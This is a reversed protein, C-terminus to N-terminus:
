WRLIPIIPIIPIIPVIPVIPVVPSIPELTGGNVLKLAEASLEEIQAQVTKKEHKMESM